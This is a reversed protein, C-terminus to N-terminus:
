MHTHLKRSSIAPCLTAVRAAELLLLVKLSYYYLITLFAVLLFYSISGRRPGNFYKANGCGSCDTVVQHHATNATCPPLLDRFIELM